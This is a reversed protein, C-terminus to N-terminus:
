TAMRSLQSHIVVQKRFVPYPRSKLRSWNLATPTGNFMGVAFISTVTNAKLTTSLSLSKNVSASTLAFSSAGADMTLYDSAQQYNIGTMSQGGDLLTM